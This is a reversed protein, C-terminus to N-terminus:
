QILAQKSTELGQSPKHRADCDDCSPCPSDSGSDGLPQGLVAHGDRHQVQVCAGAFRNDGVDFRGPARRQSDPAVDGVLGLDGLSDGLDSVRESRWGHQDVVGADNPVVHQVLHADVVPVGDHAHVQASSEQHGLRQLGIQLSLVVSADDVQAAGRRQAVAPLGVVRRGFGTHLAKRLGERDLEAPVTHGRIRDSGSEDLGVHGSGGCLADADAELLEDFERGLLDRHAPDSLGVVDRM